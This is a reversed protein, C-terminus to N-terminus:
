TKIFIDLCNDLSNSGGTKGEQKHIEQSCASVELNGWHRSNRQWWGECAMRPQSQRCVLILVREQPCRWRININNETSFVLCKLYPSRGRGQFVHLSTLSSFWAFIKLLWCLSVCLYQLSVFTKTGWRQADQQECVQRSSLSSCIIQSVATGSVQPKSPCGLIFTIFRGEGGLWSCHEFAATSLDTCRM